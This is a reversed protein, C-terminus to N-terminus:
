CLSVAFCLLVHIFCMDHAEQWIRLITPQAHAPFVPSTKWTVAPLRDRCADRCTRSARATIRAPIALWCNGKFKTAPFVNGANRACACGAFKRIQYSAWQKKDKGKVITLSDYRRNSVISIHFPFIRVIILLPIPSSFDCLVMYPMFSLQFFPSLRLYHM